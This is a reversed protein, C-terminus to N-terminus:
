NAEFLIQALSKATRQAPIDAVYRLKVKTGTMLKMANIFSKEDGLNMPEIIKGLTIISENLRTQATALQTKAENLRIELQKSLLENTSATKTTSDLQATLRRNERGTIDTVVIHGWTELALGIVLIFWGVHDLRHAWKPIHPEPPINYIISFRKRRFWSLTWIFAEVGELLVGSIVLILGLLSLTSWLSLSSADAASM